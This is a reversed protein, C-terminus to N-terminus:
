ILDGDPCPERTLIRHEIAEDGTSYTGLIMRLRTAIFSPHSVKNYFRAFNLVSDVSHLFACHLFM